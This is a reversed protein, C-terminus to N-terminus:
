EGQKVNVQFFYISDLFSRSVDFPNSARILIKYIYIYTYIIYIHIRLLTYRLCDRKFSVLSLSASAFYEIRRICCKAITTRVPSPLLNSIHQMGTM